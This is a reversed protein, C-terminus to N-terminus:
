GPAIPPIRTTSTMSAAITATPQPPPPSAAPLGVAVGVADAVGAAVALGDAVTAGSGATARARPTRNRRTPVNEEGTCTVAGGSSSPRTITTSCSPRIRTMRLPWTRSAGNRSM